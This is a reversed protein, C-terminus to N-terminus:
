KREQEPRTPEFAGISPRGAPLRTGRFDRGGNDPIRRGARISPSDERLEYAFPAELGDQNAGPDRFLPDALIARPDTPPERHEGYYVNSEFTNARSQGWSYTAKGNVYFINNFFRTDEAWGGWDTFKILDTDLKENKKETVYIVNNYM